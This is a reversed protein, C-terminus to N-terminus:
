DSYSENIQRCQSRESLLNRIWQILDGIVTIGYASLKSLLKNHCLSVVDFVKAYDVYAVV